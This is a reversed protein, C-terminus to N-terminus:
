IADCGRDRAAARTLDQHLLRHFLHEGAEKEPSLRGTEYAKSAVGRQVSACIGEDELQVQHAVEVSKEKFEETYKPDEGFFYDFYVRCRTPSLPIVLNTDMVGEYLNIMLNPYHWYYYAREGTRVASVDDDNSSTPCDQLCYRDATTIRYEKYDLAGSLGKHLVPVHYGGDLYNDVFVKWNCDLDYTVRSHFKLTDLGLPQLEHQLNGLVEPLPPAEEELCVFIWKEWTAVRVPVLGNEAKCFGEAGSFQPTGCLKGDLSYTWGHYPCQMTKACGTGAAMIEAAHHRCVNYFARLRDSRVIVIPEGGVETALYDGEKQLQDIRGAVLWNQGFVAENELKAFAEDTYWASPPTVANELALTPDYANILKNM